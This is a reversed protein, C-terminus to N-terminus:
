PPLYTPTTVGCAVPRQFRPFRDRRHVDHVHQAQSTVRYNCFEWSDFLRKSRQFTFFVGDLALNKECGTLIRRHQLTDWQLAADRSVAKVM